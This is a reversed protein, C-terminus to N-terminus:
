DRVWLDGNDAILVRGDALTVVATPPFETRDLEGRDFPGGAAGTWVVGRFTGGNPRPASAARQGPTVWDSVSPFGVADQDSGADPEDGCATLLFLLAAVLLTRM